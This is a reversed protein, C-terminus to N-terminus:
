CKTPSSRITGISGRSATTCWHSPWIGSAPRGDGRLAHEIVFQRDVAYNLARRVQTSGVVDGQVNFVLAHAYPRETMFLDVSSEAEVFERAEVPVDFLFDIEGRMMAAWATRVTPYTKVTVQDILPHGGHYTPNAALTLSGESQDQLAFPGTGILRGDVRREIRIALDDLLFPTPQRLHIRLLDPSLAEITEIDSLGPHDRLQRRDTRAGDLFNKVGGADLLTGDHFTVGQRLRITIVRGQSEMSWSAALRPEHRGDPRTQLLGETTLQLLLENQGSPSAYGIFLSGSSVPASPTRRGTCSSLLATWGVLILSLCVGGKILPRTGTM